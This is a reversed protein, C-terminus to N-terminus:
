AFADIGGPRPQTSGDPHAGPDGASGAV